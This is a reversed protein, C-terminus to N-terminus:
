KLGEQNLKELAALLRPSCRSFDDGDLFQIETNKWAQKVRTRELPDRIMELVMISEPNRIWVAERSVKPYSLKLDSFINLFGLHHFAQNLFSESGVTILPDLQIQFFLRKGKGISRLREMSSKWKRAEKEARPEAGLIKGLGLIWEPMGLFSEKPLVMVPIGLKRIRGLDEQRNYEESGLVLDPKLSIIKEIQPHPYPGITPLASLYDPFRSYESAGVMRKLVVEKGLLVASWEAVMPNLAIIREGGLASQQSLFSLTFFIFIRM